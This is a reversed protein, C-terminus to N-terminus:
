RKNKPLTWHGARKDNDINLRSKALSSSKGNLASVGTSLAYSIKNGSVGRIVVADHGRLIPVDIRTRMERVIGIENVRPGRVADRAGGLGLEVGSKGVEMGIHRDVLAHELGGVGSEIALVHCRLTGQKFKKSVLADIRQVDHAKSLGM